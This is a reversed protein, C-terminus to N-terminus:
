GTAKSCFSLWGQKRGQRMGNERRGFRRRDLRSRADHDGPKVGLGGMEWAVVFLQDKTTQHYGIVGNPSLYACKIDTKDFVRVLKSIVFGVSGYADISKGVEPDFRFLKM